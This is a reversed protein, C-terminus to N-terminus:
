NFLGVLLAPDDARDMQVTCLDAWGMRWHDGVLVIPINMSVPDQRIQDFVDQASAGRLDLDLVVLGAAHNRMRHLATHGDHAVIVHCGRREFARRLRRIWAPDDDCILVCRPLAFSISNM